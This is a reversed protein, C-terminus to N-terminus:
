STRRPAPRCDRCCSSLAGAPPVAPSETTAAAPLAAGSDDTLPSGDRAVIELPLAHGQPDLLTLELFADTAANLLRILETGGSPVELHALSADPADGSPVPTGNLSIADIGASSACLLEHATDITNAPAAAGVAPASPEPPAATMAAAATKGADLDQTQRVILVREPIGAARRADDAPGAVIIAGSLGMLMQAQVEGHVHPHYWYLGEGMDAPLHYRDTCARQGFHQPGNEPDTCVNLVDERTARSLWAQPPRV